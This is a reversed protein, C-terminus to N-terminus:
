IKIRAEAPQAREEEGTGVEEEAEESGELECRSLM